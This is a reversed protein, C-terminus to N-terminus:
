RYRADYMFARKSVSEKGDPNRVTIDVMEGNKGPPAKVELLTASVLKVKEVRTRGFLVVSEKVFGKGEISVETGGDVGGKNPAISEIVPPASADYRFAAKAIANGANGRGVEVDVLGSSRSAPTFAELMTPKRVVFSKASQDGIRVYIHEDFHAGEIVLRTGGAMPGNKPTVSDIRPAPRAEYTFGDERRVVVGHRDILEIAVLGGGERRPPLEVELERRSLLKAMARVEGIRVITDEEFNDGFLRILQGGECFGRAPSVDVLMPPTPNAEYTFAAELKGKQGDPNEIELDAPGAEAGPPTVIDLAEASKWTVRAASGGLRVVCKPHFDVGKVSLRKGGGVLGTAPTLAHIEPTPLRYAFREPAVASLGDPNTVRIEGNYAEDQPPTTFTLCKPSLRMALPARAGFFTILCGEQFNRGEVIVETGGSPPSEKPSFREITPGDDYLISISSSKGDPNEVVIEAPGAPRAPAEIEIMDDDNPRLITAGEGGVRVRCGEAFNAGYLSLKAGGRSAVVQPRVASLVPAPAGMLPPPAIAAHKEAFAATMEPPAAPKDKLALSEEEATLPKEEITAPKEEVAAPKEEAAAPKEEVAGPKEEVAAPKEPPPPAEARASARPEWLEVDRGDPDKLAALRGGAQEVIPGVEVGEERLRAASAELDDVRVSLACERRGKALPEPAADIVLSTGEPSIAEFRRSGEVREFSLGCLRTYFVSTAEPDDSLLVLKGLSWTAKNM